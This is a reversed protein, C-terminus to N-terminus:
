SGMARYLGVTCSIAFNIILLLSHVGHLLRICTGETLTLTTEFLIQAAHPVSVFCVKTHVTCALELKLQTVSLHTLLIAYLTQPALVDREKRDWPVMTNNFTYWYNNAIALNDTCPSCVPHPYMGPCM